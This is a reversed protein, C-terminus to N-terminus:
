RSVGRHLLRSLIKLRNEQVDNYDSFARLADKLHTERNFEFLMEEKDSWRTTLLGKDALRKLAELVDEPSRGL